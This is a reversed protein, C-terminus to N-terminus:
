REENACKRIDVSKVAKNKDHKKYIAKANYNKVDILRKKDRFM